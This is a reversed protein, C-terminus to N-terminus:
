PISRLCRMRPSLTNRDPRRYEDVKVGLSDIMTAEVTFSFPTTNAIDMDIVLGFPSDLDIRNKMKLGKLDFQFVLEPNDTFDLVINGNEDFSIYDNGLLVMLAEASLSGLDGLPIALDKALVMHTDVPRDLDYDRDIKCSTALAAVAALCFLIRKM